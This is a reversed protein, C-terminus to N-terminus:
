PGSGVLGCWTQVAATVGGWRPEQEMECLGPGMSKGTDVATVRVSGAHLWLATFHSRAQAQGSVHM